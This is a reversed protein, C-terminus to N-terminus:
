KRVALGIGAVALCPDLVIEAVQHNVLQRGFPSEATDRAIEAM